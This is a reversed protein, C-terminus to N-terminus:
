EGGTKVKRPRGRRRPPESGEPVSLLGLLRELEDPRLSALRTTVSDKRQAQQESLVLAREQETLSNFSDALLEMESPPSVDPMGIQWEDGAETLEKLNKFTREEVGHDTVRFRICPFPQYQYPPFRLNQGEFFFNAKPTHASPPPDLLNTYPGTVPSRGAQDTKYGGQSAMQAKMLEIQAQLEEITIAM